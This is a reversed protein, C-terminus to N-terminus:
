EAIGLARLARGPAGDPPLSLLGCPHKHFCESYGQLDAELGRQFTRSFGLTELIDTLFGPPDYCCNVHVHSGGHDAPHVAVTLIYEFDDHGLNQWCITERDCMTRQAAFEIHSGDLMIVMRGLDDADGIATARVHSLIRPLRSVDSWDALVLHPPGDVTASAEHTFQM